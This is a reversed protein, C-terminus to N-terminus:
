KEKEIHIQTIIKGTRTEFSIKINKEKKGYYGSCYSISKEEPIPNGGADVASFVIHHAVAPNVHWFQTIQQGSVGEVEDYVTWKLQKKDKVVKRRHIINKGLEYFGEFSFDMMYNLDDERCSGTAKKIWHYWIFRPGKTMQDSGGVSVTNHAKTGAFDLLTEADTNYLYSGNDRLYNVGDIRIDLHLNDAQSPRDRYAANRIFTKAKKENILYYGGIDFCHMGTTVPEYPECDAPNIGYWHLSESGSLFTKRKWVALLDNIQSSFVPYDDDTLKYFLAGDNAGYNPLEGSKMDLMKLMFDLTKGTKIYFSEDFTDGHIESLRVAWTLLQLLVRHYNFSHQIYSGDDYIQYRIEQEFWKKGKRSWHKSQPFFPFLLGSLYLMLTETVAHNNRVAIRSFHINRYVHHLQWYISNMISAFVEPTLHKSDKYYYLAFTWNMVRLSIEQSCIYHPGRNLPNKDIFDMIQDFVWASQDSDYHYDYRIIDYLFGFRAKEWVYKIDGAEGSFDDIDTWHKGPDYKYGTLPHTLWDYDTGLHIKQHHFFLFTGNTVLDYIEKLRPVPNRKLHPITKSQFFFAPTNARWEELTIYSSFPMRVPFKMRLWGTKKAILYYMRFLIYRPGMNRLLDIYKRYKKMMGRADM